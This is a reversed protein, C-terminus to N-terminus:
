SRTSSNQSWKQVKLKKWIKTVLIKTGLIENQQFFFHFNKYISLCLFILFQFNAKLKIFSIGQFNFQVLFLTLFFHLRRWNLLFGKLFCEPFFLNVLFNLGRRPACIPSIKWFFLNGVPEGILPANRVSPQVFLSLSM